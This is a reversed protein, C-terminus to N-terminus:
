IASRVSGDQSDRRLIEGLIQINLLTMGRIFTSSGMADSRDHELSQAITQEFCGSQVEVLYPNKQTIGLFIPYGTLRDAAGKGAM